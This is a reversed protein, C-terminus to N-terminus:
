LPVMGMFGTRLISTPPARPTAVIVPPATPALKRPAALAAVVVVADEDVADEDVDDPDDEVAEADCGAIGAWPV